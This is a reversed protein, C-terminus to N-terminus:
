EDILFMGVNKNYEELLFQPLEERSAWTFKLAKDEIDGDLYQAKFFFVKAGIINSEAQLSKPYKYKYFGCPANGYFKALIKKNLKEALVREATQRMTEGQIHKGFPMVWHSKDGLTENLLLVLHRDLKRQTSKNDNEKDAKTIRSAPSFKKLENLGQDVFDQGTQQLADDIMDINLSKEKMKQARLNDAICRLEHDSKMSNELEIQNMLDQVKHEIENLERTIIPKRELCVASM